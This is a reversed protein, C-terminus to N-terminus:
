DLLSPDDPLRQSAGSRLFGLCLYGATNSQYQMGCFRLTHALGTQIKGPKPDLDPEGVGEWSPDEM